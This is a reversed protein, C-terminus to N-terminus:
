TARGNKSGAVQPRERRPKAFCEGAGEAEQIERFINSRGHLAKRSWWGLRDGARSQERAALSRAPNYRPIISLNKGWELQALSLSPSLKVGRPTM